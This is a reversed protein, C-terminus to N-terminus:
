THDFRAYSIRGRRDIDIEANYRLIEHERNLRDRFLIYNSVRNTGEPLNKAFWIKHSSIVSKPSNPGDYSWARGVYGADPFDLPYRNSLLPKGNTIMKTQSTRLGFGDINLMIVYRNSADSVRSRIAQLRREPAVSVVFEAFSADEIGFRSGDEKFGSITYFVDLGFSEDRWKEIVHSVPVVEADAADYKPDNKLKRHAVEIKSVYAQLDSIQDPIDAQRDADIFDAGALNYHLGKQDRFDKLIRIEDTAQDFAESLKRMAEYKARSWPFKGFKSWGWREMSVTTYSMTSANSKNFTGLTAAMATKMTAIADERKLSAAKLAEGLASMGEGGTSRAEIRLNDRAAAKRMMSEFKVSGSASFAGWDGGATVETELKEKKSRDISYLQLLVAITAGRQDIEVFRDGYREAFRFSDDLLAKAEASMVANSPVGWRGYDAEARLIVTVSTESFSAEKKLVYGGSGSFGLYSAEVDVDVKSTEMLGKYSRIYFLKAEASPSGTDLQLPKFELFSRKPDLLDHEEYGKGLALATRPHYTHYRSRNVNLETPDKQKDAKLQRVSKTPRVHPLIENSLVSDGFQMQDVVDQYIAPRLM